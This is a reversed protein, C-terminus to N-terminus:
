RPVLALNVLGIVRLNGRSQHCILVQVFYDERRHVKLGKHDECQLLKELTWRDFLLIKLELKVRCCARYLLFLLM